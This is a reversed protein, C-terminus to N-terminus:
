MPAAGSNAPLVGLKRLDAAESSAKMATLKL